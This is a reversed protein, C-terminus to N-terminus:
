LLHNQQLLQNRNNATDLLYFVCDDTIFSRHARPLQKEGDICEAIWGVGAEATDGLTQVRDAAM